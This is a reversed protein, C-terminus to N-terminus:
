NDASAASEAKGAPKKVPPTIAKAFATHAAAGITKKEHATLGELNIGLKDLDATWDINSTVLNVKVLEGVTTAIREAKKTAIDLLPKGGPGKSGDAKGAKALMVREYEAEQLEPTALKSIRDIEAVKLPSPSDRWAQAVTPNAIVIRLLQSIYTQNKGMLDSLKNDSIQLGNAQYSTKLNYAAWALDPGSLDDRATNEFVNEELAELDSLEKVIVPIKATVGDRQALLNIAAYRRFGKVVQLTPKGKKANQIPRATIPDRLGTHVNDADWGGGNDISKVLESFSNGVGSTSSEGTTFDGTRQNQFSESDLDTLLVEVLKGKRSKIRETGATDNQTVKTKRAAM